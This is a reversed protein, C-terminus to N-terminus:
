LIQTCSINAGKKHMCLPSRDSDMSQPGSHKKIYSTLHIGLVSNNSLWSSKKVNSGQKYKLLLIIYVWEAYM